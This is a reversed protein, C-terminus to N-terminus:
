KIDSSNNPNIEDSTTYPHNPNLVICDISMSHKGFSDRINGKAIRYPFPFFKKLFNTLANERRDSVEQPTGEGEIQAKEFLHNIEDSESNLLKILNNM